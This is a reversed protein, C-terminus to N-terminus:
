RKHAIYQATIKSPNVTTSVSYEINGSLKPFSPVEIDSEIPTPLPYFSNEVTYRGSEDTVGVYTIRKAKKFDLIDCVSGVKRLPENLYIQACSSQVNNGKAFSGSGINTYFKGSVTDYMGIAGDSKRYCPVADLLLDFDKYARVAYVYLNKSTWPNSSDVWNGFCVTSANSQSYTYEKEVLQNAGVGGSPCAVLSSFGGRDFGKTTDSIYTSTYGGENNNNFTIVGSTGLTDFMYKAYLRNADSFKIDFRLKNRYGNQADAKIDIYEVQQYADPLKVYSFPVAYGCPVFDIQSTSNVIAPSFSIDFAVGSKVRVGIRNCTKNAMATYDYTIRKVTNFSWYDVLTNNNYFIIFVESNTYAANNNFQMCGTGGRSISTPIVFSENLNILIDKDATPTGYARYNGFGDSIITIGSTSVTQKAAPPMINATKDGVSKIEKPSYVSPSGNQVSNGYIVPYIRQPIETSATVTDTGQALKQEFQAILTNFLRM